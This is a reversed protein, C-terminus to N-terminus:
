KWGVCEKGSGRTLEPPVICNYYLPKLSGVRGDCLEAEQDWSKCHKDLESQLINARREIDSKLIGEMKSLGERFSAIRRDVLDKMAIVFMSKVSIEAIVTGWNLGKAIRPSCKSPSPKPFPTHLIRDNKFRLCLNVGKEAKGHVLSSGVGAYMGLLEIYQFFLNFVYDNYLLNAKAICKTLNEKSAIEWQKFSDKQQKCWEKVTILGLPDISTNPRGGVYEYQNMGSVYGLPDRSIFRGQDADFYRARYYYLGTEELITSTVKRLIGM